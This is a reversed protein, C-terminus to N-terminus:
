ISKKIKFFSIKKILGGILYSLLSFILFKCLFIFFGKIFYILHTAETIFFLPSQQILFSNISFIYSILLIYKIKKIKLDMIFPVTFILFMLRYDFNSGIIFTGLYISSGALFYKELDNLSKDFYNKTNLYGVIILIFSYLFFILIIITRFFSYNEANLFFGYETSLHFLAKSITRSGYAILLAVEIINQGILRIEDLYFFYLFFSFIVTALLILKKREIFLITLFLPYYKLLIGFFILFFKFIYFRINLILYVILFIIIDTAFREILVFNSTSFLFILLFIRSQFNKFLFFLRSIAFFYFIYTGIVFSNYLFENKLNLFDVFYLWIKPHTSIKGTGEPILPCENVYIDIGNQFCNYFHIHAKLDAFPSQPPISLSGWFKFWLNQDQSLYFLTLSVIISLFFSIVFSKDFFFNLSNNKLYKFM